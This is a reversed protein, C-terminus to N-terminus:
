LKSDPSWIPGEAFERSKDWTGKNTLRRHAGTALDLVALDGAGWDVYSLYRGDPSPAGETDTGPGAWVQRIRLENDKREVVAQARVLLSLREQALRVTEAQGPYKDIVRQFASQAEKHGLKQHCIGIRLQAQAALAQDKSGDVIKQYLAMAEQLKGQAEELTLAKEFQVQQNQSGTQALVFATMLMVALILSTRKM